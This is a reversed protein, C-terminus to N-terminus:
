SNIVCAGQTGGYSEAAARAANDSIFEDYVGEAISNLALRADCVDYGGGTKPKEVVAAGGFNTSGVAISIITLAPNDETGAQVSVEVGLTSLNVESNPDMPIKIYRARHTDVGMDNPSELLAIILAGGVEFCCPRWGILADALQGVTQPASSIALQAYVKFSDNQSAIQTWPVPVSGKAVLTPAIIFKGLAADDKHLYPATPLADASFANFPTQNSKRNTFTDKCLASLARYMLTVNAMRSRQAQQAYTKPNNPTVKARTRQEGGSRYFVLDGVKGAATGLLLNRKSM